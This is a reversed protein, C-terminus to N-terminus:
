RTRGAEAAREVRETGVFALADPRCLFRLPPLVLELSLWVAAVPHALRLEPAGFAAADLREVFPRGRAAREPRPEADVQVLRLGRPTGALHLSAIPQVDRPGLPCLERAGCALLETGARRVEARAEFYGGRLAIEAPLLAFGFREALAERAADGDCFGQVLLARPRVGSRCEVRLEALAFPGLESRAVRTVVLRALPPLTPHLAPPLLSTLAESGIEYLLQLQEAGELALAGADLSTLTPARRALHLPDATGVLM